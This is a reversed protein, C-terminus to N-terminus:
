VISLNTIYNCPKAHSEGLIETIKLWTSEWITTEHQLLAQYVKSAVWIFTLYFYLPNFSVAFEALKKINMKVKRGGEKLASDFIFNESSTNHRIQSKFNGTQSLKNKSQMMQM